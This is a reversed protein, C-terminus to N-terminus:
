SWGALPRLAGGGGGPGKLMELLGDITPGAPARRLRQLMSVDSDDVVVLREPRAVRLLRNGADNSIERVPLGVGPRWWM